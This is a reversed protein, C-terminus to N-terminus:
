WGWIIELAQWHFFLWIGTFALQLPYAVILVRYLKRGDKAQRIIYQSATRATKNGKRKRLLQVGEWPWFIAHFLANGYFLFATIWMGSNIAHNPDILWNM